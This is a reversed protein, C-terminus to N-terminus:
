RRRRCGLFERCGYESGPQGAPSFTSTTLIRHPAAPGPDAGGAHAGDDGRQAREGECEGPRQTRAARAACSPREPTQAHSRM